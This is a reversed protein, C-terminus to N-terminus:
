KELIHLLKESNGWFAMPEYDVYPYYGLNLAIKKGSAVIHDEVLKRISAPQGSCCNIIGEVKKQTAIKAISDAAKEIPLYDRLQEGGSMNFVKDGRELATDLQAFLSRPNQGLGYLYFIRVWKFSFDNRNRLEQIFRRLTDKALSYPTNPMTPMDESLEGNQMGYEFCTGTITIDELGNEFMNKIFAYNAPLNKEIHFLGKYDPLGEWALHICIDPKGFFDFYNRNAENLDAQIFRIMDAWEFARIKERDRGTAIVEHGLSVLKRVVHQGIFGSAGTVLIKM